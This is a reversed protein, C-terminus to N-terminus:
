FQSYSHICIEGSKDLYGLNKYAFALNVLNHGAGWSNISTSSKLSHIADDAMVLADELFNTSSNLFALCSQCYVTYNHYNINLLSYEYVKNLYFKAEEVEWLEMKCLGINFWTRIKLYEQNLSDIIKLSKNFCQLALEFSGIIRYTYGLIQYLNILRNEDKIKYIIPKVVDVRNINPKAIADGLRCAKGIKLM